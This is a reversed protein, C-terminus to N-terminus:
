REPPETKKTDAYLAAPILLYGALLVFPSLAAFLNTGAPDTRKLLFYGLAILVLAAAIVLLTRKGPLAEEAAPRGDRAAPNAPAAKPQPLPPRNKKHKGM